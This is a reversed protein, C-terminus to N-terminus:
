RKSIIDGLREKIEDLTDVVAHIAWTLGSFMCGMLFATIACNIFGSATLIQLAVGFISINFFYTLLTVILGIWFGMCMMCSGLKQIKLATWLRIRPIWRFRKRKLKEGIKLRTSTFLSLIENFQPHTPDTTAIKNNLDKYIELLKIDISKDSKEVLELTEIETPNLYAELKDIHKALAIRLGNFITGQVIILTLGYVILTAVVLGFM